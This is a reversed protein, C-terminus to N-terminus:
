RAPWPWGQRRWASMLSGSADGIRVTREGRRREEELLAAALAVAHLADEDPRADLLDPHEEVYRISLRGARFDPEEMVRRHFPASTEVGAVVLEDLARAMRRVADDRTPGHVVLKALLPDYHLSVTFGEEIGGDWRV